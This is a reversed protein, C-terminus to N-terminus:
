QFLQYRLSPVSYKRVEGPRIVLTIGQHRRFRRRLPRASRRAFQEFPQDLVFLLVDILEFCLNILDAFHDVFPVQALQHALSL